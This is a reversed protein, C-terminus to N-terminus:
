TQHLALKCQEEEGVLDKSLAYIRLRQQIWSFCLKPVGLLALHTSSAHAPAYAPCERFIAQDLVKPLNCFISDRMPLYQRRELHKM